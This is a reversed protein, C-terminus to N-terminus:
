TYICQLHGRGWALCDGVGSEPDVGTAEFLWHRGDKATCSCSRVALTETSGINSGEQCLSAVFEPAATSRFWDLMQDASRQCENAECVYGPSGTQGNDACGGLGGIGMGGLVLLWRM